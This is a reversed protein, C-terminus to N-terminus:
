SQKALNIIESVSTKLIKTAKTVFQYGDTKGAELLSLYPSSIGLQQAFDKQKFHAKKRITAINKWFLAYNFTPDKKQKAIGLAQFIKILNQSKLSLEGKEAKSVAQFSVGADNALDRLTLGQRRRHFYILRALKDNIM